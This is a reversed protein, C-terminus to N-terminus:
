ETYIRQLAARSEQIMAPDSQDVGYILCTVATYIGLFRAYRWITEDVPGYQEFFYAHSNKPFFSWLIAYDVVPHSISLDGWDIVGSFQGQEFLLHKYYLDGHVLVFETPSFFTSEISQIEQQLTQLTYPYAQLQILKKVRQQFNEIIQPLYTRDFVAAKAGIASAQQADIRHLQKLFLTFSGLANQRQALTLDEGTTGVLRVYGQFPYPFEACPQGQYIPNPIACSLRAQLLPLCKNEQELLAVAVKRRPFRFFYRENVAFVRNDWGESIFQIKKIPALDPFQQAICRKAQTLTISIDAQWPQSM